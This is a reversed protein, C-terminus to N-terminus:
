VSIYVPNEWRIKDEQIGIEILYKRVAGAICKEEIAILIEDFDTRKIDDPSNVPLNENQCINKYNRDVWLVVNCYRSTKIQNFYYKGVMGAGYIVLKSNKHIRGYPFLPMSPFIFGFQMLLMRDPLDLSQIKEMDEMALNRCSINEYMRKMLGFNSEMSKAAATRVENDQITFLVKLKSIYIIFISYFQHFTTNNTTVISGERVRRNFLIEKLCHTRRARQMLLFTFLEDEYLIGQFFIIGSEVLFKRKIFQLCVSVIYEHCNIQKVFLKEGSYVNDSGQNRKYANEYVPYNRKLVESEYYATGSFQLLDLQEKEAKEYLIELADRQIFDDSDLFYIYKGKASEMGKNRTASLGINRQSTVRIRGDLESYEELISLSNDTSGDNICIIEIDELTQSIVSNLCVRLYEQTNYVPIIVSVKYRDEM